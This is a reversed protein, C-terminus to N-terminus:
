PRRRAAAAGRTNFHIFDPGSYVAEDYRHQSSYDQRRIKQLKASQLSGTIVAALGVLVEVVAYLPLSAASESHESSITQQASTVGVAM